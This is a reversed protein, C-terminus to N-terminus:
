AKRRRRAALGLAGIAAGLLPLGAPLPVAAIPVGATLVRIYDGPTSAIWDVWLRNAKNADIWISDNSELGRLNHSLYTVTDSGLFDSAGLTGTRTAIGFIDGDFDIYGMQRSGSSGRPDYFVYHSSVYTNALANSGINLTLDAGLLVNQKEDFAYLHPANFNDQGVSFTSTGDLLVFTGGVANNTASLVDGGITAAGAQGATLASLAFAALYRLKM